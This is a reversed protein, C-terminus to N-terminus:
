TKKYGLWAHAAAEIEQVNDKEFDNGVIHRKAHAYAKLQEERPLDDRILITYSGDENYSVAERFAGPLPLTYVYEDM